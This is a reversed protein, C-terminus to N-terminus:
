EDNALTEILRRFAAAELEHEEFEQIGPWPTKTSAEWAAKLKDQASEIAAKIQEDSVGAVLAKYVHDHFNRPSNAAADQQLQQSLGAGSAETNAAMLMAVGAMLNMTSKM